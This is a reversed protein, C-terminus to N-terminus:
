IKLRINSHGECAKTVLHLMLYSHSAEEDIKGDLVRKLSPAIEQADFAITSGIV